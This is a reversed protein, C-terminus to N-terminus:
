LKRRVRVTLGNLGVVEVREGRRLEAEPSGTAEASEASWRAGQLRVGGRGGSFDEMVEAVAGLLASDAGGSEGGRFTRACWRRLLLIQLLTAVSFVALQLNLSEMGAMVLLGVLIASSGFFVLVFGPLLLESLMLIFGAVVWIVAIMWTTM